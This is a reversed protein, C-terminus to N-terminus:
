GVEAITDVPTSQLVVYGTNPDHVTLSKQTLDFHILGAYTTNGRVATGRRAFPIHCTGATSRPPEATTRAPLSVEFPTGTVTQVMLKCAATAQDSFYHEITEQNIGSVVAGSFAESM